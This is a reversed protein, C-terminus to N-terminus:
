PAEGRLMVEAEDELAAPSNVAREAAVWIRCAHHEATGDAYVVSDPAPWRMREGCRRCTNAGHEDAHEHKPLTNVREDGM